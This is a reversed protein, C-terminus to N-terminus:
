AAGRMSSRRSRKKKHVIAFVILGLVIAGGGAMAYAKKKTSNTDVRAPPPPAFPNDVVTGGGDPSTNWGSTPTYIDQEAYEDGYLNGGPVIASGPNQGQQTGGNSAPPNNNGPSTGVTCFVGADERAAPLEGDLALSYSAYAAKVEAPASAPPQELFWSAPAESNSAVQCSTIKLILKRIKSEVGAYDPYAQTPAPPALKTDKWYKCWLQFDRDKGKKGAFGAGCQGEPHSSYQSAKFAVSEGYRSWWADADASTSNPWQVVDGMGGLRRPGFLVITNSGSRM